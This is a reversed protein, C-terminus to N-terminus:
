VLAKGRLQEIKNISDRIPKLRAANYGSVKNQPLIMELLNTIMVLSNSIEENIIDQTPRKVGEPGKLPLCAMEVYDSM